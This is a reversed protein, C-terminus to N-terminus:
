MRPRMLLGSRRVPRNRRCGIRSGRLAAREPRRMARSRPRLARQLRPDRMRACREQRRKSRCPGRCLRGSLREKARDGPKSSIRSRRALAQRTANAILVPPAALAASAGGLPAHPPATGLPISRVAQREKLRTMGPLGTSRRETSRLAGRGSPGSFPASPSSPPGIADDNRRLRAAASGPVRRVFGSQLRARWARRAPIVDRSQMAGTDYQTHSGRLSGAAKSRACADPPELRWSFSPRRQHPSLRFPRCAARRM